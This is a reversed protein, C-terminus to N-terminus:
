GVPKQPSFWLLKALSYILIGRSTSELAPFWVHITLGLCGQARADDGPWVSKGARFRSSRRCYLFRCGQRSCYQGAMAPTPGNQAGRGPVNGVISVWRRETLIGGM